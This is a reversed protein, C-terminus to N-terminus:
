EDAEQLMGMERMRAVLRRQTVSPPAKGLKLEAKTHKRLLTMMAEWAAVATMCKQTTRTNVEIKVTGKEYAKKVQCFRVAKAIAELKDQQDKIDEIQQQHQVIADELDKENKEKALCRCWTALADWVYVHPPGMKNKKEKSMEQYTRTSTKVAELLTKKDGGEETALKVEEKSLLVDNEMGMLHDTQNNARLSLRGILEVVQTLETMEQSAGAAASSSAATEKKVKKAGRPPSRSRNANLGLM